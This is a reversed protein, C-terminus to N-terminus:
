SFSFIIQATDFPTEITFVEIVQSSLPDVINATGQFELNMMDVIIRNEEEDMQIELEIDRGIAKNERM